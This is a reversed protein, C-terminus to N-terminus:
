TDQEAPKCNATTICFCTDIGIRFRVGYINYSINFTFPYTYIENKLLKLCLNHM